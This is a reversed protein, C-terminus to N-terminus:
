EPLVTVNTGVLVSAEFVMNVAVIEVAAASTAPLWKAEAFVHCKVVTAVLAM